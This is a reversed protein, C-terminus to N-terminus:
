RPNQQIDEIDRAREVKGLLLKGMIPGLTGVMIPFAGGGCM